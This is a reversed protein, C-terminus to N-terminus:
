GAASAAIASLIKRRGGGHASFAIATKNKLLTQDRTCLLCDSCRVGRTEFPCPIVEIQDLQYRKDSLHEDVVLAAAYGAAIAEQVEVSSECSALVSVGEWAARPVRRWAHTYTWVPQGFRARYRRAAAAVVRAARVSACDGVVHLRLPRDGKLKDIEAAEARAADFASAFRSAGNLQRTLRALFGYEAYCGNNFFPCGKPCSLQAVFTSAVPGLKRNRQSNAVARALTQWSRGEM